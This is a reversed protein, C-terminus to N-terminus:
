HANRPQGVLISPSCTPCGSAPGWQREVMTIPVRCATEVTSVGCNSQMVYLRGSFGEARVGRELRQLYKNAVPHVYASLVTTNTREYERWERVIQHSAVTPTEPWLKALEAIVRKEHADNAYSHLLCVAIAEVGENNFDAVIAPLGSLDLPRRENGHYDMRGGVERRLYRPVFPTPKRYALNFFNPRDGRAIELVDRFGDTTILGVKAGRRETLSNIVLTTGHSLWEIDHIPVAVKHLVNLVGDEFDPPTTDAKEVILDQRGTGLDHILLVLDTFTGGVDTAGRIKV